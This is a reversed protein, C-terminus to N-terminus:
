KSTQMKRIETLNILHLHKLCHKTACYFRHLVAVIFFVLFQNELGTIAYHLDFTNCFAGFPCEAISEVKMLSGNTMLIMTKDIKSHCSLVPKVTFKVQLCPDTDNVLCLVRVSTSFAGLLGLARTKCGSESTFTM